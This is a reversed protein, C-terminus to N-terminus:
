SRHLRIPKVTTAAKEGTECGQCTSCGASESKAQVGDLRTRLALPVFLAIRAILWRRAAVPAFLWVAYVLAIAVILYAVVSQM